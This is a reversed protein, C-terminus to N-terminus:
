ELARRFADVDPDDIGLEALKAAISRVYDACRGSCGEAARAMAALEGVPRGSLVNKGAYIPVIAGVRDGSELRIELPLLRFGKGEREDLYDIVAQRQEEPFEFAVGKCSGSPDTVLNLTPCPRDRSGWNKVSAKNFSRRFGALEAVVRRLCGFETEWGDWTLSGYGFIWVSLGEIAKERAALTTCPTGIFGDRGWGLLSVRLYM